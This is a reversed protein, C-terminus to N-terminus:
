PADDPNAYFGNVDAIIHTAASTEICVRGATGIKSIVLNPITDGIVFNLNSANPKTSGCPYVTVFGAALAGTVTVNLVVSEAWSPVGGRGTIQLETVVNNPRIGIAQFLGDDTGSSPVRSDLLRKPALATFTSDAPYFGNVDAIIHTAASTEICVKGGTGIKAIVVNPITDGAVFNLSSANPKTTGCPYVTVYGPGLAGTATVNLVVADADVAVQGRGAVQLETVVNNTRIGIAQFLGDVTGSSPVRTDILRAPRLPEFTSTKPYFGNVDAIIHTAASTEICVKGNTGIKAIVLNPITGGAVFNLNSSNPKTSGCPYVTVYGDATAGTVTVNLAVAEADVDIGGRGSIQLETVVNSSRIGIAAFLGDVTASAPVRTDMLRAPVLPAYTPPILSVNMATAPTQKALGENTTRGLEGYFNDGFTLVDGGDRQVLSFSGGAASKTGATMMQTPTVNAPPSDTHSERGLQGHYNDGFSWVTGDTKVALTFNYGASVHAVDQMIEVPDPNASRYGQEGLQGQLSSGFGWLGGDDKIVLSFNDGAAISVVGALAQEPTSHPGYDWSSNLGLQGCDNAGFTWLTGDTKLAMTFYAGVSVSAVGSLVQQPTSHPPPPFTDGPDEAYGLQGKNNLGFTWLTGDDKVAATHYDGSAFSVVNTLVVHPVASAATTGDGLKGFSNDGFAWLNHADDLAFSSDGGAAVAIVGSLVQTPTSNVLHTFANTTTGLQGSYNGGFTWLTHDDKVVLSHSHGAALTHTEPSAVASAIRIPALVGCVATLMIAAAIANLSRRRL